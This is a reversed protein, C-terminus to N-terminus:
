VQTEYSELVTLLEQGLDGTANRIRNTEPDRVVMGCAELKPLHVHHLATRVRKRHESDARDTNRLAEAVRDALADMEMAEEDAFELTRLIIRRQESAIALLVKDPPNPESSM